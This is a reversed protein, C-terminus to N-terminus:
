GMSPCVHLRSRVWGCLWSGGSADWGATGGVFHHTKVYKPLSVKVRVLIKLYVSRRM